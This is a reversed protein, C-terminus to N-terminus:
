HWSQKRKGLRGLGCFHKAEINDREIKRDAELYIAHLNLRHEGPILTYAMDLDQRLEAVTRAKGPYNGTAMIGGSLGREPDEFGGVDDGQWCHLSIPITSLTELAAEADVSIEAYREKALQYAEEINNM